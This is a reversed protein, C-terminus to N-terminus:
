TVTRSAVDRLKPRNTHSSSLKSPSICARGLNRLTNLLAHFICYAAALIYTIPTRYPCSSDFLPLTSTALYILAFASFVGLAVCAVIRNIPYLFVVLGLTFLIVSLHVLASVFSVVHEMGYRGVGM